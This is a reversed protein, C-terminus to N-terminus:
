AEIEAEFALDFDRHFNGEVAQSSGIWEEGDPYPNTLSWPCEAIALMGGKNCSIKFGYSKNKNVILGAPLEFNIWNGEMPKSVHMRAEATKQRWTHTQNDFEYLSLTANAEGYVISPFLKIRKLLGDAPVTFTQGCYYDVGNSCQGVWYYPGIEKYGFSVIPTSSRKFPQFTQM